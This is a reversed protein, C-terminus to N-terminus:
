ALEPDHISVTEVSGDDFFRQSYGEAMNDVSAVITRANPSPAADSRVKSGLPHDGEFVKKLVDHMHPNKEKLIERSVKPWNPGTFNPDNVECYARVSEAFFEDLGTGAYPTVFGDRGKKKAEAFERLIGSDKFSFYQKGGGLAADLAHGLEHIVTVKSNATSAKLYVVGEAPVFLGAASEVRPDGAYQKLIPSVESFQQSRGLIHVKTGNDSLIQRVAKPYHEEVISHVTEGYHSGTGEITLKPAPAPPTAVRKAAPPRV